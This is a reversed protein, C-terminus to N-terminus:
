FTFISSEAHGTKTLNPICAFKVMPPPGCIFTVTEDSAAPLHKAVQWILSSTPLHHGGAMHLIICTCAYRVIYMYM